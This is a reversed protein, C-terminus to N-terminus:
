REIERDRERERERDRERERKRKERERERINRLRPRSPRGGRNLCQMSWGKVATAVTPAAELQTVYVSVLWTSTGDEVCKRWLGTTTNKYMFTGNSHLVRETAYLWYDTAVAICLCAFSACSCISTLILVRSKKKCWCMSLLPCDRTLWDVSFVFLDPLTSRILFLADVGILLRHLTTLRSLIYHLKSALIADYSFDILHKIVM